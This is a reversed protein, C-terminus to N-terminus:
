EELWEPPIVKDAYKFGHKLCWDSYKTKSVKSLRQNSNSFVFRIDYDPHQKKILIHKQRDSTLFRGKTEIIIGNPLEFDPTYRRTKLPETYGIVLEEYKFPIGKAELHQATIEELGSRYGEAIARQRVASSFVRPQKKKSTATKKNSTTM